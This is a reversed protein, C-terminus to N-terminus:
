IELTKVWTKVAREMARPTFPISPKGKAYDFVNIVQGTHDDNSPDSFWIEIYAGGKWSFVLDTFEPYLTIQANSM